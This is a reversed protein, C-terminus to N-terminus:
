STNKKRRLILGLIILGVIVCGGIVSAGIIFDNNSNDYTQQQGMDGSTRICTWQNPGTAKECIYGVGCDENTSCEVDRLQAYVFSSLMFFMLTILVIKSKLM